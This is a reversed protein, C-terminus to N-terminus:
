CAARMQQWARTFGILSVEDQSGDAWTLHMSRGAIMEQIIRDDQVRAIFGYRKNGRPDDWLYAPAEFSWTRGDDVRWAIKGKGQNEAKLRQEFGDIGGKASTGFLLASKCDLDIALRGSRSETSIRDATYYAWGKAQASGAFLVFMLLPLVAAPRFRAALRARHASIARTELDPGQRHGACKM